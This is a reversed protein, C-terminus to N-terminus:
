RYFCDVEYKQILESIFGSKKMERIHRNLCALLDPENKPIVFSNTCPIIVREDRIFQAKPNEVLYDKVHDPEAFTADALGQDVFRLISLVDSFQPVYVKWVEYPIQDVYADHVDGYKV